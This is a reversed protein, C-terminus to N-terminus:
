QRGHPALGITPPFSADIQKAVIPRGNTSTKPWALGAVEVVFRHGPDQGNQEDTPDLGRPTRDDSRRGWETGYVADADASLLANIMANM